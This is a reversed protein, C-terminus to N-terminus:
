TLPEYGEGNLKTTVTYSGSNIKGNNSYTVSVGNPLEGSIALSHSNGDYQFEKDEFTVGTIQKGTIRLTATKTMTEYNTAKITVTVTYTGVNTQENNSYTITAFSPAGIVYISHTQGDYEFTGDSFTINEFSAKNITLTAALTKNNYGEKSLLATATYTGADIHTERGTYTIQTGEPAGRVEDLIHSEGDYILTKSDFFVSEFDKYTPETLTSDTESGQQDDEGSSVCGTLALAFSLIFIPLTKKM